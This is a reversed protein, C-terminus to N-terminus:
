SQGGGRRALSGTGKFGGRPALLAKHKRGHQRSHVPIPATPRKSNENRSLARMDGGAERCSTNGGELAAEGAAASGKRCGVARATGHRMLGGECPRGRGRALPRAPMCCPARRAAAGRGKGGFCAVKMPLSPFKAGSRWVVGRWAAAAARGILMAAPGVAKRVGSSPTGRSGARPQRPGRRTLGRGATTRARGCGPKSARRGAPGHMRRGNRGM